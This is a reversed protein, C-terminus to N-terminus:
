YFSTFLSRKTGEQRFYELLAYLHDPYSHASNGNTLLGM